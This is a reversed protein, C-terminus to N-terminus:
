ENVEGTYKDVLERDLIRDYSAGELNEDSPSLAKVADRIEKPVDKYFLYYGNSEMKTKYKELLPQFDLWKGIATDEVKKFFKKPALDKRGILLIDVEPIISPIADPWVAATVPKGQSLLLMIKPVFVDDPVSEQLQERNYNWEWMGQLVESPLSHAEPNDKLIASYGFENGHLWGEILKESNYEGTGMGNNQPDFVSLSFSNIFKKVEPEAENVFYSPRFFNMNFAVPYFEEGEELDDPEQLEFLFYVGTEENEYWAQDGELNYNKRNAFYNKFDIELFKGDKPKLFLDYSM